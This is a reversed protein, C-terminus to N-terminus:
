MAHTSKSKETSCHRLPKRLVLHKSGFIMSRFYFQNPNAQHFAADQSSPFGPSSCSKCPRTEYTKTFTKCSNGSRKLCSSRTSVTRNAEQNSAGLREVKGYFQM